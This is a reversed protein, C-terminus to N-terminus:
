EVRTVTGTIKNLKTPGAAPAAPAPAAQPIGAATTTPTTTSVTTTPTSQATGAPAPEVAASVEPPVPAQPIGAAPVASGRPYFRDAIAEVEQPSLLRREGTAEDTVEKGSLRSIIAARSRANPDQDLGAQKRRGELILNQTQVRNQEISQFHKIVAVAVNPDGLLQTAQALAEQPNDQARRYMDEDGILEAGPFEEPETIIKEVLPNAEMGIRALGDRLFERRYKKPAKRSERIVEFLADLKRRDEQDRAIAADQERRMEENFNQVVRAKLSDAKNPDGSITGVAFDRAIDQVSTPRAGIVDGYRQALDPGLLQTAIKMTDAQPLPAGGSLANIRNALADKTLGNAM